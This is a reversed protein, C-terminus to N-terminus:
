VSLVQEAMSIDPHADLIKKQVKEVRTKPVDVMLLYRGDEIDKEHMEVLSNPIGIGIMASAWLGFFLSFAVIGAIGLASMHIGAPMTAEFLGYICVMLVVSILGGRKLAPILDTTQLVSAQHVKARELLAVDKGLVHVHAEDVGIDDLEQIITKGKEITPVVFCLRKM